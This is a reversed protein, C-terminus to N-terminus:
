RRVFTGDPQKELRLMWYETLHDACLLAGPVRARRCDVAKCIAKREGSM